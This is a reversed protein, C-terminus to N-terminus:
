LGSQISQLPCSTAALASFRIQAQGFGASVLASATGLAPCPLSRSLQWGLSQLAIGLQGATSTVGTGTAMIVHHGWCARQSPVQRCRQLSRTSCTCCGHQVDLPCRQKRDSDLGDVDNKSLAIHSSSTEWGGQEADSRRRRWNLVSLRLAAKVEM